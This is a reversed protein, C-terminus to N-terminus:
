AVTRIYGQLLNPLSDIFVLRGLKDVTRDVVLLAWHGAETPGRFVQIFILKDNTWDIGHDGIRADKVEKAFKIWTGTLFISVFRCFASMKVLPNRTSFNSDIRKNSQPQYTVPSYRQGESDEKNRKSDFSKTCSESSLSHRPLLTVLERYSSNGTSDCKFGETLGKQVPATNPQIKPV